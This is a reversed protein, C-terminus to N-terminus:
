RGAPGDGPYAVAIMQASLGEFAARWADATDADYAEGLIEALMRDLATGVSAYHGPGVGYELHRVALDEIVPRLVSWDQLQAVAIAFTSMLKRAQGEIDGEFLREVEPDIEFLRDYFVAGARDSEARVARFSKRVRDIKEQTLAM